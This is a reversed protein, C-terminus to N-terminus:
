GSTTPSNFKSRSRTLLVMIGLSSLGLRFPIRASKRICGLGDLRMMPDTYALGYPRFLRTTSTWASRGNGGRSWRLLVTSQSGIKAGALAKQLPGPTENAETWLVPTFTTREEDLAVAHCAREIKESLHRDPLELPWIWKSIGLTMEEIPLGYAAVTDLVGVFRVSKVETNRTKDYRPRKLIADKIGLVFDRFLRFPTEFNLKSQYRDSRYARYAQKAKRQLESESAFRVLGQNGVLGILVRVTFAGRSFGFAYIHADPEYNRCLFTYLDLVNRKLGWGFAGGLIALPKFASTGVGDAYNAIQNRTTLDLSQFIRWINSRWVKAAANGTGDSLVVINKPMRHELNRHALV